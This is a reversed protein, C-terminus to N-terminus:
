CPIDHFTHTLYGLGLITHLSWSLITKKGRKKTQNGQFPPARPAKGKPIRLRRCRRPPRSRRQPGPHPLIRRHHRLPLNPDGEAPV